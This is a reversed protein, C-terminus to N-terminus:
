LPVPFFLSCSTPQDTDINQKSMYTTRAKLVGTSVDQKNTTSRGGFSTQAINVSNANVGSPCICTTHQM